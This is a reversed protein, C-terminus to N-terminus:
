IDEEAEILIKAQKKKTQKHTKKNHLKLLQKTYKPYYDKILYLMQLYKRNIDTAMKENEQCDKTSSCSSIKIFDLKNNREHTM